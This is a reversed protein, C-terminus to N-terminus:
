FRGYLPLAAMTGADDAKKKARYDQQKKRRKAREHDAREVDTLADLRTYARVTRGEAAAKAHYDAHAIARWVARNAEGQKDYQRQIDVISARSTVMWNRITKKM